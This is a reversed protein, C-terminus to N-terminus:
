RRVTGPDHRYQGTARQHRYKAKQESYIRQKEDDSLRNDGTFNRAVEQEEANLGYRNVPVAAQPNATRHALSQFQNYTAELGAIRVAADAMGDADNMSESMHYDSLASQYSTTLNAVGRNYVEKLNAM